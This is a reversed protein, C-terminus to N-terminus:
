QLSKAKFIANVKDILIIRNVGFCDNFVYLLMPYTVTSKLQRIQELYNNIEADESNCFIFWSYYVGYKLLDALLAEEDMNTKEDNAFEKFRIYVKDRNPVSGTKMTLYDRVFDSIKANTIKKEIKLWYQKYLRNQDEYTHNMLLFNRILDGSTLTIGTSNLSEFIMQPNESKKDKDLQIYVLEIHGMAQYIDEPTFESHEILTSFLKYNQTINSATNDEEGNIIKIYDNEDSEIPKLKIRYKEDVRKNILYTELIDEKIDENSISDYLAKLLLTISTIRQQGDILVLQQFTPEVYDLVYVVTGLFHEIEYDKKIIGEIDRFLRTCEENKWDYNRQYVPINFTKKTAGLLELLKIKNADM